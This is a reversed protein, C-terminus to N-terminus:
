GLIGYCGPEANRERCHRKGRVDVRISEEGGEPLVSARMVWAGVVGAGVVVGMAGTVLGGRGDWLEPNWVLAGIASGHVLEDFALEIEVPFWIEIECTKHPRIHLVM